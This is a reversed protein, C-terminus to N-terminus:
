VDEVAWTRTLARHVALWSARDEELRRSGAASLRYYKRRRGADSKGWRSTVLGDKELRHLVPYLM